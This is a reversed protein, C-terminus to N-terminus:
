QQRPLDIVFQVEKGGELRLEPDHLTMTIRLGTPWPTYSRESNFPWLAGVADLPESQNYGFFAEYVYAPIPNGAVVMQTPLGDIHDAYFTNAPNLWNFYPLTGRQPDPLDTNAPFNELSPMGFWPQESGQPIGMGYLEDGNGPNGDPDVVNGQADLVEGTGASYTWDITFSSCGGSIVHNTLAQDVRHM